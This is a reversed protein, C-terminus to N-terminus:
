GALAEALTTHWLRDGTALDIGVAGDDIGVVLVGDVATPTAPMPVPFRQDTVVPTSWRLAGDTLDHARLVGDAGAVVVLQDAVLVSARHDLGAMAVDWRPSGDAVALAHIRDATVVVATSPDALRVRLVEDTDIGVSDADIQWRARGSLPDVAILAPGARGVGVLSGEADRGADELHTSELMEGGGLLDGSEMARVHVSAVVGAGADTDQTVLLETGDARVVDAVPEEGDAVWRVAPAFDVPAGGDWVEPMVALDLALLKETLKQNGLWLGGAVERFENSMGNVSALPGAGGATFLALGGSGELDVAVLEGAVRPTGLPDFHLGDPRQYTTGWVPQGTMGDLRALGSTALEQGEEGDPQTVTGALVVDGDLDDVALSEVAVGDSGHPQRCDPRLCGTLLREDLPRDLDVRHQLHREAPECEVVGTPDVLRTVIRVEEDTEVLDTTGRETCSGTSNYVWVTGGDPTIRLLFWEAATGVDAGAPRGETLVGSHVEVPEPESMGVEGSDGEDARETCAILVLM